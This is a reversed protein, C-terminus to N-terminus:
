PLRADPDVSNSVGDRLFATSRRGGSLRKLSGSSHARGKSDLQYIQFAMGRPLNPPM